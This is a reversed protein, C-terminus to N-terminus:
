FVASVSAAYIYVLTKNDAHELKASIAAKVSASIRWANLFIALRIPEPDFREELIDDLLYYRIPAGLSTSLMLQPDALCGIGFDSSMGGPWQLISHDDVFVAVEARM